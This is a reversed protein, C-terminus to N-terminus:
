TCMSAWLTARGFGDKSAEPTPMSFGRCVKENYANSCGDWARVGGTKGEGCGYGEAREVGEVSEVEQGM